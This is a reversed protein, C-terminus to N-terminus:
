AFWWVIRSGGRCFDGRFLNLRSRMLPSCVFDSFDPGELACEIQESRDVRFIVREPLRTESAFDLIDQLIRYASILPADWAADIGFCDWSVEPLKAELLDPFAQSPHLGQLWPSTLWAMSDRLSELNVAQGMMAQVALNQATGDHLDAALWHMERELDFVGEQWREGTLDQVVCLGSECEVHYGIWGFGELRFSESHMGPFQLAHDFWDRARSQDPGAIKKWLPEKAEGHYSHFAPNCHDPLQSKDLWALGLGVRNHLEGLFERREQTESEAKLRNRHHRELELHSGALNAVLQLIELDERHYSGLLERHSLYLAAPLGPVLAIMVGRAESLILSEFPDSQSAQVVLGGSTLAQELISESFIAFGPPGQYALPRWGEGDSELWFVQHSQLLQALFHVCRQKVREENHEQLIEPLQELVVLTRQWATVSSRGQMAPSQAQPVGLMARLAGTTREVLALQSSAHPHFLIFQFCDLALGDEGRFAALRGREFSARLQLAPTGESRLELEALGVKVLDLKRNVEAQQYGAAEDIWDLLLSCSDLIREADRYNTFVTGLTM